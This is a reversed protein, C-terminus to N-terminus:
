PTANDSKRQSFLWIVTNADNWTKDGSGTHGAEPYEFYLSTGGQRVIEEHGPKAALKMSDKGGVHVRVPIHKYRAVDIKLQEMEEPSPAQYPLGVFWGAVSIAGAFLDPAAKLFEWCAGGGFSFGTYYVREPDISLEDSAVMDRILSISAQTYWGEENIAALQPHRNSLSPTGKRGSPYYPAPIPNEKIDPIQPVISFCETNENDYYKTFLYRALNWPEMSKRNDIGCGGSGHVSIVLPYKKSPDYNKPYMIRYPLSGGAFRYERPIHGYIGNPVAVCSHSISSINVLGDPCIVLWAHTAGGRSYTFRTTKGPSIERLRSFNYSTEMAKDFDRRTFYAMGALLKGDGSYAITIDHHNLEVGKGSYIVPSVFCTKGEIQKKQWVTSIKSPDFKASYQNIVYEPSNILAGSIEVPKLLEQKPAAELIDPKELEVEKEVEETPGPNVKQQVPNFGADCICTLFASLAIILVTFLKGHIRM